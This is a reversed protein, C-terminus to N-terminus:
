RCPTGPSPPGPSRISALLDVYAGEILREPEIGLTSMLETAERTGVETPEGDALVVELELFDGLGDVRDLHVRTGGVRYLRRSKVVRGVAGCALTLLERLAAPETTPSRLYFSTKPGAQDPRRYFILEGSRPSFTRLKLRGESCRFFTDDQQILRPGDTALAAVSPEIADLGDLGDLGDLRAKIEINRAM